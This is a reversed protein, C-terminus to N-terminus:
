SYRQLYPCREWQTSLRRADFKAIDIHEVPKNLFSKKNHGKRVIKKNMVVLYNIKGANDYLSMIPKDNLEVITNSYVM